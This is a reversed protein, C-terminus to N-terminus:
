AANAMDLATELAKAKIKARSGFWASELATDRDRGAEHDAFYTVANTLGWYTGKSSKLDAGPQTEVLELVKKGTRKFCDALPLLENDNNTPPEILLQPEFVRAIFEDRQDSTYKAAALLEAQQEFDALANEALGLAEEAEFQVDADFARVHPMRFAMGGSMAMELTNNCVVRVSTFKGGLSEGWVHPSHLLLFGHVEDGGPLTFGKRISALAWIKKGDLLSGATHMEMDGADVFRKFFDMVESNQTPVFRPGCPGLVAQDSDRVLARLNGALSYRGKDDKARVERASVTWDLEAAKLMEEPTLNPDVKVGLGHWPLDGAYAMTEVAATM